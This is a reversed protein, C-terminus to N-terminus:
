RFYENKFLFFLMIHVTHKTKIETHSSISILETINQTQKNKNNNNNNNKKMQQLNNKVLAYKRIYLYSITSQERKKHYCFIRLFYLFRKNKNMLEIVDNRKEISKPGIIKTKIKDKPKM